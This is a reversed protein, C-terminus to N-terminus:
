ARSLTTLSRKSGYLARYKGLSALVSINAFRRRFSRLTSFIIRALVHARTPSLHVSVAGRVASWASSSHRDRRSDSLYTINYVQITVWLILEAKM